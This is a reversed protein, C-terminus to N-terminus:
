YCNTSTATNSKLFFILSCAIKDIQVVIKTTKTRPAPVKIKDLTVYSITIVGISSIIVLTLRM